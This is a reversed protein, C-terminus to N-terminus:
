EAVAELSGLRFNCVSPLLPSFIDLYDGTASLRASDMVSVSTSGLLDPLALALEAFADIVFVVVVQLWECDREHNKYYISM